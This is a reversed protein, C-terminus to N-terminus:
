ARLQLYLTLSSSQSLGGIGSHLIMPVLTGQSLLILITDYLSPLSQCHGLLMMMPFASCKQFSDLRSGVKKGATVLALTTFAAAISSPMAEFIACSNNCVSISGMAMSVHSMLARESLGDSFLIGDLGAVQPCIGDDHLRALDDSSILHKVPDGDDNYIGNVVENYHDWTVPEGHLKSIDAEGFIASQLRPDREVLLGNVDVM